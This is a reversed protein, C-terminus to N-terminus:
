MRSLLWEVLDCIAYFHNYGIKYQAMVTERSRQKYARIGKAQNRLCAEEYDMVVNLDRLVTPFNCLLETKKENHEEVLLLILEKKTM